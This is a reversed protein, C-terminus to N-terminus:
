GRNKDRFRNLIAIAAARPCVPHFICILFAYTNVKRVLWNKTTAPNTRNLNGRQLSGSLGWNRIMESVLNKPGYSVSRRSQIRRPQVNSSQPIVQAYKRTSSWIRESIAVVKGMDHNFIPRSVKKIVGSSAIKRCIALLRPRRDISLRNLVTPACVISGVRTVKDNASTIRM